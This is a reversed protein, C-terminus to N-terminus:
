KELVSVRGIDLGGIGVIVYRDNAKMPSRVLLTFITYHCRSNLLSLLFFINDVDWRKRFETYVGGFVM